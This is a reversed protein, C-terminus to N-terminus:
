KKKGVLMFRKYNDLNLTGSYLLEMPYKTKMDEIDKCINTHDYGELNNSQLIILSEKDISDFWHNNKIHECSTNIIVDFKFDNLHNVDVSAHCFSSNFRNLHKSFDELRIDPDVELINKYGLHYLCLSTFGIWSGIVLIRSSQDKVNKKVHDILWAKSQIQKLRFADRIENLTINKSAEVNYLANMVLPIIRSIESYNIDNKNLYENM